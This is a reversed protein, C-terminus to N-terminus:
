ASELDDIRRSTITYTGVTKMNAAFITIETSWSFGRQEDNGTITTESQITFRNDFRGVIEEEILRDSRDIFQENTLFSIGTLDRWVREAVKELEVIAIMTLASNLVSSDDNFVTQVAPIFLSRRDYQQAWVLGNDWDRNRVNAPKFTNNVDKFLTIRNNGPVDFGLGANWVGNGSGMYRASKAALELTLPLLGKYQSNILRGSQGMVIARCTPTGFVESEPFARAAARLTIAMSAEESVSLQPQSVDQTSLVVYIDKRLSIPVLLKEKVEVPFGTDYIVSQPFQAKDLFPWPQRDYNATITGVADNFNDLSLTGDSGGGAYHTSNESLLAGGDAPGKVRYTHYANGHLDNGSLINIMHRYGNSGETDDVPLDGIAVEEAYIDSLIADLNDEYVHMEGFPAYKPPIGPQDLEEYTPLLAERYFLDRGVRENVVGEKLSFDVFLEGFNNPIIQPSSNDDPREVLQARYLYAGQDLVTEEDIQNNSETSPASLRLGVNNGYSGIHAVKFEFLPYFTSQNGGTDVQEGTSPSQKGLEGDGGITGGYGDDIGTSVESVKWIATHGTITSGTSIQNGFEDERVSGDANREYVPIEEKLLDVGLALTAPDNADPPVIRQIMASNAQENVMNALVTQHTAFKGRLDFSKRGYMRQRSGGVVLQPELPGRETLLFIHPLHTPIQEPEIVPPRGSLDQVGQLIAQPSENRITAM